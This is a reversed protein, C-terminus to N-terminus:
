YLTLIAYQNESMRMEFLFLNERSNSKQMIEIRHM